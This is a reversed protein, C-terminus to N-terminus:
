EPALASSPSAGSCASVSRNFAHRIGARNVSHDSRVVPQLSTDSRRNGIIFITKDNGGAVPFPARRREPACRSRSKSKAVTTAAGSVLNLRNLLLRISAMLIDRLAHYASPIICIRLAIPRNIPIRVVSNHSTPIFREGKDLVIRWHQGVEKM